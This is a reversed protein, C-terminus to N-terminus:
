GEGRLRTGSSVHGRFALTSHFGGSQVHVPEFGALGHVPIERGDLKILSRQLPAFTPQSVHAGEGRDGARMRPPGGAVLEDHLLRQRSVRHVPARGVSGKTLFVEIREPLLDDRKQVPLFQEDSVRPSTGIGIVGQVNPDHVVVRPVVQEGVVHEEPWCGFLQGHELGLERHEVRRPVLGIRGLM